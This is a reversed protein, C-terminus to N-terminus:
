DIVAHISSALSGLANGINAGPAGFMGGAFPAVKAVVGLLTKWFSDNEYFSVAVPLENVIMRYIILAQADLPASETMSNYTLANSANSKYEIMSWARITMQSWQYLPEPLNSIQIVFNSLRICNSELSGVGTLRGLLHGMEINERNVQYLSPNIDTWRFSTQGDVATMYVGREVPATYNTVNGNNNFGELGVVAKSLKEGTGNDYANTDAIGNNIKFATISGKWSMANQLNILEISNGAFRFQTVNNNTTGGAAPKNITGTFVAEFDRFPVPVFQTAIDVQQGAKVWAWYFAVGPIPPQWILLDKDIWFKPNAIEEGLEFLQISALISGWLDWAYVHRYKLSMSTDADPIGSFAGQGSKDPAAFVNELWRMGRASLGVM